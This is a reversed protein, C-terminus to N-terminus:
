SRSRRNPGPSAAAEARASAPKVAAPKAPQQTRAPSSPRTAGNTRPGKSRATQRRPAEIGLKEIEDLMVGDRLGRRVMEISRAGLHNCIEELIIAGAVITESRKEEIGPTRSREALNMQRISASIRNLDRVSFTTRVENRPRPGSAQKRVMNALAGVTGASGVITACPTPSAIETCLSRRVHERLLAEDSALLPDSRCYMETLRASGIPISISLGVAGSQIISIETSGGGLDVLALPGSRRGVSPLIGRAIYRAEDQGSIVELRLGAAKEVEQVFTQGNSADRVASTAVARLSSVKHRRGVTAFRAIVQLARAIPEPALQGTRFVAEGLRIPERDDFIVRFTGNVFVRAIQLRIANTGVDIVGLQTRVPIGAAACM